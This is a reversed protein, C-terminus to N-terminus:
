VISDEAAAVLAAATSARTVRRNMSRRTRIRRGLTSLAMNRFARQEEAHQRAQQQVSAPQEYGEMLNYNCLPCRIHSETWSNLCPEHYLHNCPLCIVKEGREYECLCISCSPEEDDDFSKMLSGGGGELKSPSIKEFASNEEVQDEDEALDITSVSGYNSDSRKIAETSATRTLRATEEANDGWDYSKWKEKAENTVGPGDESSRENGGYGGNEFMQRQSELIALALQAQFSMLGLDPDFDVAADAGTGGEGDGVANGEGRTSAGNGNSEEAIQRDHEEEAQRRNVFWRYTWTTGMICLFILGVDKELIAEIWLRTLFFLILLTCTSQRRYRLERETQIQSTLFPHGTPNPHQTGQEEDDSSSNSSQLNEDNPIGNSESTESDNNNPNSENINGLAAMTPRPSAEDDGGDAGNVAAETLNLDYHQNNDNNEGLVVISPGGSQHQDNINAVTNNDSNHNNSDNNNADENQSIREHAHARRSPRLMRTFM